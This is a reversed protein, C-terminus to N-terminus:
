RVYSNRWSFIYTRTIHSCCLNLDALLVARDSWSKEYVDIYLQITATLPCCVDPRVQAKAMRIHGSPGRKRAPNMHNQERKWDQIAKGFSNWEWFVTSSWHSSRGFVNSGNFNSQIRPISSQEPYPYNTGRLIIRICDRIYRSTQNSLTLFKRRYIKRYVTAFGVDDRLTAEWQSANPKVCSVASTTKHLYYMKEISFIFLHM